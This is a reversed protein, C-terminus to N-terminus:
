RPRYRDATSVAMASTERGGAMWIKGNPLVVATHVSRAYSMSDSLLAFTNTAPDYVDATAVPVPSSGFGPGGGALLVRGNPLTTVTHYSRTQSVPGTASSLGSAPDYLRASSTGGHGTVLVKGNPLATVAFGESFSEGLSGTGAFSDGVPDYIQMFISAEGVVLVRGDPLLTAASYFGNAMLPAGTTLTWSGASPNYLEASAGSGGGTVLVYGTRLLTATHYYRGASMSGTVAFTGTVPDFLECSTGTAAGSVLLVKGNPLLTATHRARATTMNPLASCSGSVPECLEASNLPIDLPDYGGTVLVWGTPLMTATHARRATQLSLGAEFGATLYPPDVPHYVESQTQVTAGDRGGAVLVQGDGMLVAESGSRASSLLGTATFANSTVPDFLEARRQYVNGDYGGAVLVLGSPLLTATHGSRPTAMPNVLTFTGTWPAWVEATPTTVIPPLGGPTSGGVLLIRGDPLATATHGSRAYHMTGATASFSSTSPDYLYANASIGSISTGGSILVRGDRILTAAASGAASPMSGVTTWGSSPNYVEASDLFGVGSDYGGAVLVRGNPLLTATHVERGAAMSSTAEFVGPGGAAPIYTEATDLAAGGCYGGAILVRGNPLLTATHNMRPAVMTATTVSGSAPDYLEASNTCAVGSTTSGGALLIRGDNLKTITFGVRAVGFPPGNSFGIVDFPESVFAPVNPPSSAALTYGYGGRDIRVDTFQAIGDQGSTATLTTGSLTGGGPNNVISMTVLAGPVPTVGDAVRVAFASMPQGGTARHPLVTYSLTSGLAPTFSAIDFSSSQVAPTAEPMAALLKYGSGPLTVIVNGFSAMGDVSLTGTIPGGLLLGPNDWLSLTVSGTMPGGEARTATVQVAPAIAHGAFGNTPPESFTLTGLEISIDGYDDSIVGELTASARINCLGETDVSVNNFTALGSSNTQAFLTGSLRAGMGTVISLMVGVGAQSVAAGNGDRLQVTMAPLPQGVTGVAGPGSEFTLRLAGARPTPYYVEASPVFPGVAPSGGVQLVTGDALLTATQENRAEALSGTLVFTGAVPDFLEASDFVLTGDVGGAGGAVVVQGSPLLTSTHFRRGTLMSGVAAFTNTAPDFVEATALAGSLANAGGTLLVRGDRLLTASHSYRGGGAMASFVETSLLTEPDFIEAKDYIVSGSWGGAILVRGDNLKTISPGNRLTLLNGVVAFTQNRVDYREVTMSAESVLLVDGGPLPLATHYRRRDPRLDDLWDFTSTLWGRIEATDLVQGDGGTGGTILVDGNALMAASAAGRATTLPGTPSFTRSAPSYLEVDATAVSSTIGGAILVSGDLLRTATHAARPTAPDNATYAFGAVDILSTATSTGATATLTYGYGGRNISLNAFHAIGDVNTVATPFGALTGGYPNVGLALTVVVGPLVAPGVMVNVSFPQGATVNLPVAQFSVTNSAPPLPAAGVNFATSEWPDAGPVSARLKYEVGPESVSLNSFTAIGDPGTMVSFTGALIGSNGNPVLTITVLAGSVASEDKTVRVRVAPTIPQGAITTSPPQTAFAVVYAGTPLPPDNAPIAVPEVTVDKKPDYTPDYSYYRGSAADYSVVNDLRNPDFIRLTVFAEEGPPLAMTANTIAPNTIAPTGTATNTIAPNPINALVVDETRYAVECAHDGASNQSTPAPTVYRKHLILQSQLGPPIQKGILEVIYASSASGDNKVTWTVDTVIGDGPLTNTIAPNTIAPNTIAPNTIAPNTIAPNTIAPNTIAPNTFAPNILAWAADSPNTIAPNTIAPNTIAPNTITRNTIAPNFTDNTIAPNTIAPSLPDPNLYIKGQGDVLPTPGGSGQVEQVQVTIQAAPSSGKAFVTRAVGSRAAIWVSLVRVEPDVPTEVFSAWTVGTGPQITLSYYRDKDTTNQAFVPFARPADTKLPKANDLSGVVLPPYIAATYINANRMGTTGATCGAKAPTYDAWTKGEPPPSVDRNDTWVAHFVPPPMGTGANFGWAGGPGRIFSVAAVDIYDGMFPSTGQAYLPLNPPNFQMQDIILPEGPGPQWSGFQYQSVRVKAFQTPTTIDAQASQVDITHRRELLQGVMSPPVSDAIYRWFVTDIEAQTPPNSLDGAYVRSKAYPWTLPDATSPSFQYSLYTHDDRLDYWILQLKTGALTIAPMIQHGRSLPNNPDPNDVAVPMSWGTGNTSTALMIRADGGSGVGRQSWAVYVKGNGDVTMTPYANTRFSVAAPDTGQDFLSIAAIRAAKTFTAGRDTSKSVMIADEGSRSLFQRWAVYLTGDKPSVAMTAGQNTMIGESIKSPQDWTVGCTTSRAVMLKTVNNALNGVFRSWVVYLTGADIQQGSVTCTGQGSRRIDYAIYPKDIFQGATGSDVVSTDVYAIADDKKQVTQDNTDIFRAVFVKSAARVGRDFAIGSYFFLGNTGARVIPDAAAALGKLPSATGSPSADQPYGPLLGTKWTRGCDYSKFLGLWGDGVQTNSPVGPLDGPVGAMDVTRYDNAGAFITCQNRTSVAMSPENQRQLWPDGNPLTTGSVMNINPGVVPSQAGATTSTLALMWAVYALLGVVVSAGCNMTGFRHTRERAM